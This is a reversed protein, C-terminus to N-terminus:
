AGFRLRQGSDPDMLTWKQERCLRQLVPFAFDDDTATVLLQRVERDASAFEVVMGPGFLRTTGSDPRSAAGVAPTSSGDPATNFRALTDIMERQSGLPPMGEQDENPGVTRIVIIQRTRAM